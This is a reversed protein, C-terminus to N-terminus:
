GAVSGGETHPGPKPYLGCYLRQALVRVYFIAFGDYAGFAPNPVVGFASFAIPHSQNSAQPWLPEPVDRLPM